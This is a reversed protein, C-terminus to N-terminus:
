VVQVLGAGVVDRGFGGLPQSSTVVMKRIAAGTPTRGAERARQLLLAAIAAVVPTAMSTGSKCAFLDARSVSELVKGTASRPVPVTSVVNVGPAAVDPKSAGWSSPGRSSTSAPLHTRKSLSGVTLAGRFQGPCCLETDFGGQGARRLADAQEHTNGAAAVVLKGRALTTEVARCLICLLGRHCTWNHGNPASFPLHNLGLSLSIVDISDDEGVADFGRAIDGPQFGGGARGVKVSVLRVGPAIGPFTMDRSAIIGACHTGHPGPIAVDESCTSVSAAVELSPHESDVGTDLVAVGVGAGDIGPHAAAFAPLGIEAPVDDLLEADVVPDLEVLQLGEPGKAQLHRLQDPDATFQLGGGAILPTPEVGLKSLQKGVRDIQGMADDRYREWREGAKAKRRQVLATVAIPDAPSPAILPPPAGSLGVDRLYHLPAHDSAIRLFGGFSPTEDEARALVDQLLPGIRAM